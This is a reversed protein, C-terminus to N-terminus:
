RGYNAGPTISIDPGGGVGPQTQNTSAQRNENNDAADGSVWGIVFAVPLFLLPWWSTKSRHSERAAARHGEPDGRWGRKNAAM